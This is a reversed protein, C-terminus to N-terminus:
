RTCVVCTMEKEEEYPPCPLSGCRPEVHYFLAGNHNDHGGLVTEPAVDMCEFTSRHHNHREAMLYGYYERTWNQPCSFRGPVMLVAERTAVFCVVCPVNHDHLPLNSAPVNGAIEYEAGYILSHDATGPGFDFNEPEETVCQYNGGGGKHTYHSGAARGTYVVETGETNPCTTRGWRVYTVGGSRPGPLGQSGPRGQAGTPGAKGDRGAIGRPGPEGDRGDRGDRGQLLEVYHPVEENDGSVTHRKEILSNKQPSTYSYRCM